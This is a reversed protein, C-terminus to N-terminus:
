EDGQPASARIAFWVKFKVWKGNRKVRGAFDIRYAAAEPFVFENRPFARGNRLVEGSASSVKLTCRCIAWAFKGTRPKVRPVLILAPADAIPEDDPSVHMTVSVGNNSATQHAQAAAVCVLTTGAIAILVGLRRTPM